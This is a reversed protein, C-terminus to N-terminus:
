LEVEYDKIDFIEELFLRETSGPNRIDEFWYFTDNELDSKFTGNIFGTPYRKIHCMLKESFYFKAKQIVAKKNENAMAKYGM